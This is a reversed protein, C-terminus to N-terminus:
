IYQAQNGHDPKDAIPSGLRPFVRMRLLMARVRVDVRMRLGPPQLVTSCDTRPFQAAARIEAWWFLRYPHKISVWGASESAMNAPLTLGHHSPQLRGRFDVQQRVPGSRSVRLGLDLQAELDLDLGLFIGAVLPEM